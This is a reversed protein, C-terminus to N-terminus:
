YKYEVQSYLLKSVQFTANRVAVFNSGKQIKQTASQRPLLLSCKFLVIKYSKQRCLKTVFDYVDTLTVKVTLWDTLWDQCQAGRPGMVLNQIYNLCIRNQQWPAEARVLPRTQRTVLWDEDTNTVYIYMKIKCTKRANQRKKLLRRRRRGRLGATWTKYLLNNSINM